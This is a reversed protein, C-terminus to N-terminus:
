MHKNKGSHYGTMLHTENMADLVFLDILISYGEFRLEYLKNRMGFVLVLRAEKNKKFHVKVKGEYETAFM